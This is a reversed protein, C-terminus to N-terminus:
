KYLHRNIIKGRADWSFRDRAYARAAAGRASLEAGDTRWVRRLADAINRSIADPKVIICYRELELRLEEVPGVATLIIPLGTALYEPLKSPFAYETIPESPRPIVLVDSHVILRYAEEHPVNRHITTVGSLGFRDLEARVATDDGSLILNLRVPVGEERALAAAEILYPLGQYTRANGMYGIALTEKSHVQASADPVEDVVVAVHAIVWKRSMPAYYDAQKRLMTFVTDYLHLLVWVKSKLVFYRFRGIKGDALLEDFSMGHVEDVIKVGTVLKLLVPAVLGIDTATFVHSIARTKVIHRLALLKRLGREQPYPIFIDLFEEPVSRACILLDHEKRIERFMSCLHLPTGRKPDKLHIDALFLVRSM